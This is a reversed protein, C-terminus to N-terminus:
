YSIHIIPSIVIYDRSQWVPIEGPLARHYRFDIGFADSVTIRANWALFGFHERLNYDVRGSLAFQLLDWHQSVGAEFYPVYHYQTPELEKLLHNNSLKTLYDLDHWTIGAGLDVLGWIRNAKSSLTIYNRISYFQNPSRRSLEYRGKPIVAISAEFGWEDYRGGPINWNPNYLAKLFINSSTGVLKPEKFINELGTGAPISFFEPEEWGVHISLLDYDRGKELFLGKHKARLGVVGTGRSWMPLNIAEVGFNGFVSLYWRADDAPLTSLVMVEPTIASLFVDFNPATAIDTEPHQIDTYSYEKKLITACTEEGLLKNLYVWDSITHEYSDSKITLSELRHEGFRKQAIIAARNHQILDDVLYKLSNFDVASASDRFVIKQNILSLLIERVMNRDHIVWTEILDQLVYSSNTDHMLNWAQVLEKKQQADSSAPAASVQAQLESAAIVFLLLISWVLHRIVSSTGSLSQM